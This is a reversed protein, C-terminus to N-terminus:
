NETAIEALREGGLPAARPTRDGGWNDEEVFEGRKIRAAKALNRKATNIHCQSLESIEKALPLFPYPETVDIYKLVQKAARMIQRHRRKTNM